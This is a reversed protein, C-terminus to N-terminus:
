LPLLSFPPLSNFCCFAVIGGKTGWIMLIYTIGGTFSVDGKKYLNIYAPHPITTQVWESSASINLLPTPTTSHSFIIIYKKLEGKHPPIALCTVSIQQSPSNNASQHTQYWPLFIYSLLRYFSVYKIDNSLLLINRTM